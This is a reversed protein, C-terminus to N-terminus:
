LAPIHSICCRWCFLSAKKINLLLALLFKHTSIHSLSMLVKAKFTRDSHTALSFALPLRSINITCVRSFLTSLFLNENQKAQKSQGPSYYGLVVCSVTSKWVAINQLQVPCLVHSIDLVDFSTSLQFLFIFNLFFWGFM